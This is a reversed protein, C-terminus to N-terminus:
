DGNCHGGKVSYTVDSYYNFWDVKICFDAWDWNDMRVEQWSDLTHAEESCGPCDKYFFTVSRIGKPLDWDANCNGDRFTKKWSVPDNVWWAEVGISCNRPAQSHNLHLVAGPFVPNEHPAPEAMAGPIWGPVLLVPVLGLVALLIVFSSASGGGRYLQRIAKFYRTM